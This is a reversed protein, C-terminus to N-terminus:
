RVFYETLECSLVNALLGSEIVVCFATAMPGILFIGNARGSYKTPDATVPEVGVGAAGDARAPHWKGDRFYWPRAAVAANTVELRLEVGQRVALTTWEEAPLLDPLGTPPTTRATLKGM